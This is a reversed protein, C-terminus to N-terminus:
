DPSAVPLGAARGSADRARGDTRREETPPRPMVSVTLVGGGGRAQGGGDHASTVSGAPAPPAKPPEPQKGSRNAENDGIPEPKAAPAPAASPPAEALVAPTKHKPALAKPKPVARKV